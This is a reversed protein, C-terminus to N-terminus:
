DSLFYIIHVYLLFISLKDYRLKVTGRTLNTSDKDKIRARYPTTAIRKLDSMGETVNINDQVGYGVGLDLVPPDNRERVDMFITLTDSVAGQDDNVTTNIM